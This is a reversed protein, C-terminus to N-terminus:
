AQEKTMLSNGVAHGDEAADILAQINNADFVLGARQLTEVVAIATQVCGVIMEFWRQEGTANDPLAM